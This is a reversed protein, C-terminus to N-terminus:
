IGHILFEKIESLLHHITIQMSPRDKVNKPCRLNEKTLKMLKQCKILVCLLSHVLEYIMYAGCFTGYQRYICTSIVDFIIPTM